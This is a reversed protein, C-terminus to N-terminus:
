YTPWGWALYADKIYREASERSVEFNRKDCRVILESQFSIMLNQPNDPMKGPYWDLKIIKVISSIDEQSLRSRPRMIKEYGGDTSKGPDCNEKKFNAGISINEHSLRLFQSFLSGIAGARSKEDVIDKVAELDRKLEDKFKIGVRARVGNTKIGAYGRETLGRSFTNQPDPSYEFAKCWFTYVKYLNTATIKMSENKDTCMELFDGIIDLEEKYETTSKLVSDPIQLGSDYWNLAGDVLWKFIGERESILKDRLHLDAQERSIKVAFPVKLIRRWISYDQSEIIPEHNTMLFLKFEPTYEFFEQYLFRCKIKDQGTIKKIRGEDLVQNQETESTIVLRAGQLDALDNSATRGYKKKIITESECTKGYDSIVDLITDIMTGKGNSGNGQGIVFVQESTHGTLSYGFYRQLFSQIDKDPIIQDLFNDWQPCLATTTYNCPIKKSLLLEKDHQVLRGTRLNLVGNMVNVLNKHNDFVEREIPIGPENRASAIMSTLPHQNESSQIFKLLKTQKIADRESLILSYMGQIISKAYQFIEEKKDENWVTGDWIYWGVAPCYRIIDGYKDVLRRANGWDTLNYKTGKDSLQDPTPLKPPICGEFTNKTPEM